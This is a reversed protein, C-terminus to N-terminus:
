NTQPWAGRVSGFHRQLTSFEPSGPNPNTPNGQPDLYACGVEEPPLACILKRALAIAEMWHKKLAVIKLPSTLSLADIEEQRHHAFREAFDLIMHPNLGEDKGAAAWAVTGLHLYEQHIFVADVFDRAESRGALALMKNTAADFTHLRYGLEPDPEVPFFRFASDYVWELTVSDTAQTTQSVVARQFTPQQLLWRVAFGSKELTAVDAAASEAVSRAIDHSIDIDRSYRPSQGGAHLVTAGYVFSDPSRAQRIVAFIARQLETLPM